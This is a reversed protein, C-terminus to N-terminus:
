MGSLTRFPYLAVFDWLLVATWPVALWVLLRNAGLLRAVAVYLGPMTVVMYYLYTTRADILHFLEPPLWTGLIWAIALFSVQERRRVALWICLAIAIWSTWLLVRNIEGRFSIIRTSSRVAGGVYVTRTVAFYTIPKRDIWFDTPAAAIGRPHGVDRLKSAFRNMFAFHNCGDSWLWLRRCLSSQNRDVPHGGSYPTTLADLASLLSFYTLGAVAFVAVPRRLARVTARLAPIVTARLAPIVTARLAPIVRVRPRSRARREWLRALGHLLELTAVVLLTYAAFEKVCCGIGIVAGAAIPRRRLYLAAGALMFPVVYIDLVAIRSHVVWLNEVSALGAAGLALWPSGGACRVLWYLLLIALAGFVVATIRWGIANDGLLAVGGAIIIKGLQPHEGNPDAGPPAARFYIDGPRVPEHAIVRAASVYYREDFIYGQSPAKGAPIGLHFARAGVGFACVVALLGLPTRPHAVFRRIRNRLRERRPRDRGTPSSV